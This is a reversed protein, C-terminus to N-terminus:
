KASYGGDVILNTGTIWRAADSLLYICANAVDDPKGIGLLFNKRLEKIKSDSMKEEAKKMMETQIYGPSISNVRINKRALEIAMSRIGSIIAGKSSCYGILGANAVVSMISAIFVFSAGNSDLYKKKSIIKAFEFGSIVNVSFLKNYYEPKMVKLPLTMEIGASHIFGNIKGLKSVTESIVSEIKNYETIDQSFFLHNGRELKNYTEKLREENRAILIVNAGMQSCSIACQRGIGSSAGTILINKDKLSFPSNM